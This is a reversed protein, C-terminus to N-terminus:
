RFLLILIHAHIIRNPNNICKPFNVSLLSYHEIKHIKCIGTKDFIWDVMGFKLLLINLFVM